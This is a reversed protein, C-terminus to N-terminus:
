LRISNEVVLLRGELSGKGILGLGMRELARRRQRKITKGLWERELLLRQVLLLHGQLILLWCKVIGYLLLLLGIGILISWLHKLLM